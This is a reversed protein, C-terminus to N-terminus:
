RAPERGCRACRRDVASADVFLLAGQECICRRAPTAEVPGLGLRQQADAVAADIEDDTM